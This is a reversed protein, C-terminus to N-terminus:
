CLLKLRRAAVLALGYSDGVAGDPHVVVSSWFASVECLLVTTVTARLVIRYRYTLLNINIVEM